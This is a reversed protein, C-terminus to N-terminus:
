PEHNIKTMSRSPLRTFANPADITEAVSLVRRKDTSSSPLSNKHKMKDAAGRTRGGTSERHTFRARGSKSQIQSSKTLQCAHFQADYPEGQPAYTPYVYKKNLRIPHTVQFCHYLPVLLGDRGASSCM